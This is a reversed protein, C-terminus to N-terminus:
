LQRTMRRTNTHHARMSERTQQSFALWCRQPVPVSLLPLSLYVDYGLAGDTRVSGAAQAHQHEAARVANKIGRRTVSVSGCTDGRYLQDYPDTIRVEVPVLTSLAALM